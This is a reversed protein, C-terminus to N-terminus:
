LRLDDAGSATAASCKGHVGKVPNLGKAQLQNFYTIMVVGNLVAIGLLTVLETPAAYTAAPLLLALVYGSIHSFIRPKVPEASIM